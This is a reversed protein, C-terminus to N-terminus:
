DILTRGTLRLFVDELTARRVLAREVPIGAAHVQELVHEGDDAYLQLREPLEEVYRALAHLQGDLSHRVDPALRLELVDRTVYRQILQRPSGEAVIRGKDM